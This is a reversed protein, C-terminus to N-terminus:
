RAMVQEVCRVVRSPFRHDKQIHALAADESEVGARIIEGGVTVTGPEWFPPPTPSRMSPVGDRRHDARDRQEAIRGVGFLQISYM